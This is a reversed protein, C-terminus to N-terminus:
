GTADEDPPSVCSAPDYLACSVKLAPLHLAQAAQQTAKPRGASLTCIGTTGPSAKTALTRTVCGGEKM